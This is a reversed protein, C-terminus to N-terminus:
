TQNTKDKKVSKRLFKIQQIVGILLFLYLWVSSKETIENPGGIMFGLYMILTLFCCIVFTLWPESKAFIIYLIYLLLIPFTIFDYSNVIVYIDVLISILIVCLMIPLISKKIINLTLYNTIIDM